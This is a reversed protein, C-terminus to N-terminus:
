KIILALHDKNDPNQKTELWTELSSILIPRYNRRRFLLSIINPNKLSSLFGENLAKLFIKCEPKSILYWFDAEMILMEEFIEAFLENPVIGIMLSIIQNYKM